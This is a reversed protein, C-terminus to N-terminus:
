STLGRYIQTKKIQMIFTVRCPEGLAQRKQFSITHAHTQVIETSELEDEDTSEVDESGENEESPVPAVCNHAANECAAEVDFEFSDVTACAHWKAAHSTVAQAKHTIKVASRVCILLGTVLM